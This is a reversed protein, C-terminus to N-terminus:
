EDDEEGEEDEDETSMYFWDVDLHDTMNDFRERHNTGIFIGSCNQENDFSLSIMEAYDRTFTRQSNNSVDAVEQWNDKIYSVVEPKITELCNANYTLGGLVGNYVALMLLCGETTPSELHWDPNFEDSSYNGYVPPNSNSLDEKKIGWSVVAQNEEYFILYADQSFYIEGGPQLLRNHSYNIAEHKGLTLYYERLKAPLVIGLRKELEVIKSEEFGFNENEPVNHLHRIKQLYTM